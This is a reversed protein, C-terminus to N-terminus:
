HKPNPFRSLQSMSAFNQFTLFPNTKVAAASVYRPEVIHASVILTDFSSCSSVESDVTHSVTVRVDPIFMAM